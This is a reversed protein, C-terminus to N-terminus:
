GPAGETAADGCAVVHHDSASREITVVLSTFDFKERLDASPADLVTQTLGNTPDLVYAVEGPEACSGTRLQTPLGDAPLESALVPFDVIVRTRAGEPVFSALGDHLGYDGTRPLEVGFSKTPTAAAAAAPEDDGGGCGSATVALVVAALM